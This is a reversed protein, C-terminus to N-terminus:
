KFLHTVNDSPLAGAQEWIHINSILKLIDADKANFDIAGTPRPGDCILMNERAYVYAIASDVGRVPPIAGAEEAKAIMTCEIPNEWCGLLHIERNKLKENDRNKLEMLVNLRADRGGIKTLVKPIGITDFPGDLLLEACQLWEVLSKGQPVVMLRIGAALSNDKIYNLAEYSNALTKECDMYVDPLIIESAHILNAKDLITKINQQDGEIVGNDMVVFAGKDAEARYFDTYKKDKGVLHALAMHFPKDAILNLYNTPLITAAKM